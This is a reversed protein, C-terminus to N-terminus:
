AGSSAPLIKIAARRDFQQDDRQVEYVVGMGGRGIEAVLRYAGLRRGTLGTSVARAVAGSLDPSQEMFGPDDDYARLMELVEVRTDEDPCQARLWPEREIPARGRAEDFLATVRAWQASNM